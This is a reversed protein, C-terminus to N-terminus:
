PAPKRANLYVIRDSSVNSGAEVQPRLISEFYQRESATFRDALIVSLPPAWPHPSIGIFVEWSTVPSPMLDIHLELHIETFGAASAFNVLDRESFNVLPNQAYAEASDPFQAARWRHLLRLFRDDRGPAPAELRAKLARVYFAEDQFIPEALSIRGGPKLVRYFERLATKKDAVYALSARTAVVDVSAMGIAGLKDASCELFTCQERVGRQVALTEAHRLMPASIDTLIVQLSKGIRDLARFAIVGEGAGVDVLTMGPSLKAADLVRDAYGLIIDRM